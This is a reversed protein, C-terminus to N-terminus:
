QDELDSLGSTLAQATHQLFLPCCVLTTRNRGRTGSRIKAKRVYALHGMVSCCYQVLKTSISASLPTYPSAGWVPAYLSRTFGKSPTPLQPLPQYILPLHQIPTELPVHAGMAWHRAPLHQQRQPPEEDEPAAACRLEKIATLRKFVCTHKRLSSWYQGTLLYVKLDPGVTYQMQIPPCSLM